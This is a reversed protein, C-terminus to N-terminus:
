CVFLGLCCHTWVCPITVSFIFGVSESMHGMCVFHILLEASRTNDPFKVTDLMRSCKTSDLTRTSTELMDQQLQSSLAVDGRRGCLGKRKGMRKLQWETPLYYNFGNIWGSVWECRTIFIHSQQLSWSQGFGSLLAAHKWRKSGWLGTSALSLYLLQLHLIQPLPCLIQRPPLDSVWSYLSQPPSYHTCPPSSWLCLPSKWSVSYSPTQCLSLPRHSPSSVSYLLFDQSRLLATKQVM